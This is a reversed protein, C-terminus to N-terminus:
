AEAEGHAAPEVVDIAFYPCADVAARITEPDDGPPDLFRSRREPDLAFSRPARRVCTGSGQCDQRRVRAVISM